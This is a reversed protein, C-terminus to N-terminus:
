RCITRVMDVKFKVDYLFEKNNVSLYYGEILYLLNTLHSVSIEKKNENYLGILYYSDEIIQNM